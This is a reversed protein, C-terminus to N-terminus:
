FRLIKGTPIMSSDFGLKSGKSLNTAIWDFYLPHGPEGWKMMTWGAEM